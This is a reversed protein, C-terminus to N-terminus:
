DEVECLERMTYGWEPVEGLEVIGKGKDASTRVTSVSADAPQETAVKWLRKRLGAEERSSLRKEVTSVGTDGVTPVNAASPTASGSGAGGDSKMKGLNFMGPAPSLGAEALWAENM